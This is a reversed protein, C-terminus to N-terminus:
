LPGNGGYIFIEAIAAAGGASLITIELFLILADAKFEVLAFGFSQLNIGVNEFRFEVSAALRISERQM